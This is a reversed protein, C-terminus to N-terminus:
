FEYALLVDSTNQGRALLGFDVVLANFRAGNLRPALAAFSACDDPTLHGDGCGPLQGSSAAAALWGAAQQGLSPNAMLRRVCDAANRMLHRPCTDCEAAVLAAVLAEGHAALVSHVAQLHAPTVGEDDAHEHSAVLRSILELGHAVPDAERLRVAAAALQLLAPLAPSSWLAAPAYVACAHALSLLSSVLAPHERLQGEGQPLYPPPSPVVSDVEASEAPQGPPLRSRQARGLLWMSGGLKLLVKGKCGM